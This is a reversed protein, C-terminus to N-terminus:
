GECYSRYACNNCWKTPEFSPSKPTNTFLVIENLLRDLMEFNEESGEIFIVTKKSIVKGDIKKLKLATKLLFMYFLLQNKAAEVNSLTKKHETIIYHGSEKTIKDFKLFDFPFKQEGERLDALTRGITINEDGQDAHIKRSYLWAERKCTTYYNVLTGTIEEYTFM